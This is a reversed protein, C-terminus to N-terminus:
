HGQKDSLDRGADAQRAALGELVWRGVADGDGAGLTLVLDGPRVRELLYDAAARRQSIHVAAPHEMAAVVAGTDVGPMERERSRYIDLGIVRDADGFSTTFAKQLLRTRSFTHPQWVAWLRRGPYRQRAAALTARIETPHHAYDDIVTIGAIEGQVQFRRGIGGFDILASRIDSLTVGAGLAVATAALVNRLNHDGPIRTRLLGAVDGDIELLFDQGGLQNVRREVARYYRGAFGAPRSALGYGTVPFSGGSAAVVKVVGPDDLCAVLQGNAPIRAVFARFAAFYAEENPFLDPHDHEVNTLVATQPRLGLFMHDYEDAEIVFHQGRGARGNAEDSGAALQPLVGGVVVTPDLGARLLLHAILGTTTTKGHTGAVAIGQSGAMLQGLFAARKQIPIGAARAAVVEANDPPIASSLLLLDAGKIHRGDHGSYVTAGLKQLAATQANSERDSGSVRYGRGLLVRAIASLGSGGIGVLHVHAGPALAPPSDPTTFAAAIM